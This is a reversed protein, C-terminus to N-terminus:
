ARERHILIEVDGFPVPIPAHPKHVTVDVADIMPFADLVHTAIREALTEILNVPDSAIIACVQEALEGYHATLTLDDAAAAPRLDTHLVLDVTFEQGDRREHDFVGHYGTAKLGTLRIRDRLADAM